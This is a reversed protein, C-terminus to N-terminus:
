LGEGMVIRLTTLSQQYEALARHYMTLAEIRAREADILRLLDTAGETYAALAITAIEDARKRMPALTLQILETRTRTELLARAVEGVVQTEVAELRSEAERVGASAAEIAGQNRNRFPLDIQLGALVTNFGNNRKWGFLATPDPRVQARESRLQAKAQEVAQRAIQVEPRRLLISVTDAPPPTQVQSLQGTLVVPRFNRRGLRRLLELLSREADASSARVASDLRDRELEVRMLELEAMAGERVRDRHYQVVKEFSGLDLALLRTLEAAAVANWYWLSVESAISRETQALQLEAAEVSEEAAGVRAERKEGAEFSQQLYAFQDTDQGFVFPSSSPPRVNELQLILQPNPRLAAQTRWGRAM